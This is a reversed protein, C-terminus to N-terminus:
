KLGNSTRLWEILARMAASVHRRSPYYLYLPDVAACWPALVRVLHGANIQAQVDGLATYALGLGDLAARVMLEPSDLTLRGNVAISLKHGKQEFEWDYLEQSHRMRYRICAHSSLDVPTSPLSKGAFYAPSGVVAFEVPKSIAVAVVDAALREGFRVGADFGSSVIDVTADDVALELEIDAHASMFAPLIPALVLNAALRPVNLRLRGAPRDRFNNTTDLARDIQALAPVLQRLLAEGAATLSISRTTRNLLRVGLRIELGKIAHSIASRSIGLESAARSFNGQRVVVALSALDPLDKPNM